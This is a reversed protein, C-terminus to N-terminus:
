DVAHPMLRLRAEHAVRGAEDEDTYSGLSILRSGQRVTARWKQARVSWHVGRYKSTSGRSSGQNQAQVDATVLRLNSRRNDLRDRNIHDVQMLNGPALGMLFRHLKIEMPNKGEHSRSLSYAPYGGSGVHWRYRSVQEADAADILAYTRVSKDRAYLPVKAVDGDIVLPARNSQQVGTSQCDKSCYRRREVEARKVSFTTGCVPCTLNVPM